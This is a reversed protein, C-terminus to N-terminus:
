CGGYSIRKDTDPTIPPPEPLYQWHTPPLVGLQKGDNWNGYSSGEILREYCGIYRGYIRCFCLVWEGFPPKSRKEEIWNQEM